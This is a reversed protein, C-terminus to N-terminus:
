LCAFGERDVCHVDTASSGYRATYLEEQLGGARIRTTATDLRPLEVLREEMLPLAGAGRWECSAPV